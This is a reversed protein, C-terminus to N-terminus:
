GLVQLTHEVIAVMLVARVSHVLLLLHARVRLVLVAAVVELGELHLEQTVQRSLISRLVNRTQHVIRIVVTRGVHTCSTRSECAVNIVHSSVLVHVVIRLIHLTVVVLLGL